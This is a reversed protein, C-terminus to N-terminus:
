VFDNIPEWTLGDPLPQNPQWGPPPGLCCWKEDNLHNNMDVFPISAHDNTAPLSIATDIQRSLHFCEQLDATRPALRFGEPLPNPEGDPGIFDEDEGPDRIDLLPFIVLLVSTNTINNANSTHNFTTADNCANDDDDNNSHVKHTSRITFNIQCLIGIVVHFILTTWSDTIAMVIFNKIWFSNCYFRKDLLDTISLVSNKDYCSDNQTLIHILPAM